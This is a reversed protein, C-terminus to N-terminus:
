EVSDGFFASVDVPVDVADVPGNAYDIPNDNEDLDVDSCNGDCEEYELKFQLDSATKVSEQLLDAYRSYSHVKRLLRLNSHVYVLKSAVETKLRNRRKNHVFDYESWSQEAFSASAPQSLIRM